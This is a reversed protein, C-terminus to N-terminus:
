SEIEALPALDLLRGVETAAFVEVARLDVETDVVLRTQAWIPDRCVISRIRWRPQEYFVTTVHERQAASLSAAELPAFAASRVCEVSQGPPFTRRKVNTVMDFGPEIFDIMRHVLMGDMLPSDGSIRVFWDCPHVRLCAQYRAVVNDLEGRFVPVQCDRLVFDVLPDDSPHTSTLLVIQPRLGGRAIGDVVSAVLPRGHFPALMKGAFRVSSMRAQVFVRIQM